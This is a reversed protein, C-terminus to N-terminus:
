CSKPRIRPSESRGPPYRDMLLSQSELEWVRMRKTRSFSDLISLPVGNWPKKVLPKKQLFLASIQAIKYLYKGSRDSRVLIVCITHFFLLQNPECYLRNECYKGEGFRESLCVFESKSFRLTQKLTNQLSFQMLICGFHTIRKMKLM